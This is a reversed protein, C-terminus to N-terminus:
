RAIRRDRRLRAPSRSCRGTTNIEEVLAAFTSSKGSGMAGCILVLGHDHRAIRALDPHLNLAALTPQAATLLRVSLGVGRASQLVNVRCRVGAILHSMDYSRRALFTRWGDDGCVTRAEEMALRPAIPEGVTALRGATRIAIPLGPEVHLDSAENAKALEIWAKLSM